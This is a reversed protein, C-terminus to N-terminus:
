LDTVGNRNTHCSCRKWTLNIEVTIQPSSTRMCYQLRSSKYLAFGDNM